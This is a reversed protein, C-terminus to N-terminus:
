DHKEEIYFSIINRLNLTVFLIVISASIMTLKMTIKLIQKAKPVDGSGIATGLLASIAYGFSLSVSYILMLISFVLTM